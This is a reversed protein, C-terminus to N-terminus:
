KTQKTRDAQLGALLTTFDDRDRLAALDSDQAMHTADKYGAAVAQKLWAMAQDAEAVAAKTASDSKDGARIVAATVARMCAADYLSAADARKVKEWMEATARCGASNKAKEFHRLRLYMATPMLRPDVLKGQAYELCEDIVSVAEAGRNLQVLSEAVACMSRLTDPHDPGLKVKMLALTEKRLKLADAHRGLRAYSNALNGM